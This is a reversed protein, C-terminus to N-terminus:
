GLMVHDEDSQDFTEFTVLRYPRETTDFLLLDKYDTLSLPLYLATESLTQVALFYMELKRPIEIMESMKMHAISFIVLLVVSIWM